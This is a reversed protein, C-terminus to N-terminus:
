PCAAFGAKEKFFPVYARDVKLIHQLLWNKLLELMENEVAEGAEFNTLMNMISSTFTNHLAKHARTDPYDYREFEVEEVIFHNMTYDMLGEIVEAIVKRDVTEKNLEDYIRNTADFLWRHQEDVVSLGVSFDESWPMFTM